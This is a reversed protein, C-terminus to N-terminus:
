TFRRWDGDERPEWYLPLDWGRSQVANWGESLWLEARRYGGDTIFAKYEGNTVLRSALEFADVFVRHRPQENDYTFAEGAHGIWRLGEEFRVWRCPTVRSGGTSQKERYVPYLPNVAFAYKIDTLMLEQHQQEHNLGIEIVPRLESVQAASLNDLFERMQQDVHKRYEFVEAVTPRSLLGRKPRCHREGITVYYSRFLYAFRPHFPRYGKVHPALLFQEFFWTTHALHWKTPSADPMPQVVYDEPVLPECLRESATRIQEYAGAFQKGDPLAARGVDGPPRDITQTM